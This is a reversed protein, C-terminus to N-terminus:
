TKPLRQKIDQIRGLWGAPTDLPANKDPLLDLDQLEGTTVVRKDVLVQLLATVVKYIADNQDGQDGLKELYEKKRKEVSSPEYKIFEGTTFNFIDRGNEPLSLPTIEIADKADPVAGGAFSGLFTGDPLAFFKEKTDDKAM